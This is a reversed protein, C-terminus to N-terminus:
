FGLEKSYKYPYENYITFLNNIRIIVTKYAQSLIQKLNYQTIVWFVDGGM